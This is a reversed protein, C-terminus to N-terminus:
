KWTIHGFLRWRNELLTISLPCENCKEYLSSNTIKVPYKINLIKRLQQRHFANLKEEETKTLAWTSCNYILVLKVLTRYLKIKTKRKVKDGKIWINQLQALAATSLRKRRNIDEEDGILTGGKKANKYEKGSRSLTTQETKDANVLLNYKKLTKQVEAIDAFELGIFDVDDAYVIETPLTKEFDTTPRPLITRVEKLANELYITFLVPSRSDGQPSGINSEFPKEKTAGNIRTNIITDSLLFRIIRLEDEEVIERLIDLLTQRDITDFASSMDIGTIKIEVDEKKTKAALWKHAWVVGATSRDPRFGSQSHSLYEETCPRIRHLTIISLAKRITNLLTIPRLNQPPGKPKGPKHLAILEGSNIKLSEHEEFVRNLINAISGHLTPTGYKLLEGSIEDEGPARNNKVRTARM